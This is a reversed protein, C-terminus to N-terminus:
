EGLLAGLRQEALQRLKTLSSDGVGLDKAVDIGVLAANLRKLAIGRHDVSQVERTHPISLMLYLMLPWWMASLPSKEIATRWDSDYSTRVLRQVSLKRCIVELFVLLQPDNVESDARAFQSLYAAVNNGEDLSTEALSTVLSEELDATVYNPIKLESGGARNKDTM